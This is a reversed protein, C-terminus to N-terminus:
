RSRLALGLIVGAILGSGLAIAISEVPRKQVTSQARNYGESVRQSVQEYGQQVREAAQHAMDRAKETASSMVSASGEILRELEAEIRERTEGTKRQILGVLQDVNGMAEDIEDGSLQGWRERLQGQLTNWHSSLLQQNIM